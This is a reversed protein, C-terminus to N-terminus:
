HQCIMNLLVDSYPSMGKSTVIETPPGYSQPRSSKALPFSLIKHSQSVILAAPYEVRAKTVLSVCLSM